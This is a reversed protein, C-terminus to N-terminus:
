PRLKSRALRGLAAAIVVSPVLLWLPAPVSRPAPEPDLPYLHLMPVDDYGFGGSASAFRLHFMGSEHFTYDLVWTTANARQMPREDAGLMVTHAPDWHEIGAELADFTANVPQGARDLTLMHIRTTTNTRADLTADAAALRIPLDPYVHFTTVNTEDGREDTIRLTTTYNGAHPMTLNARFAGGAVSLPLREQWGQGDDFDLSVNARSPNYELRNGELTVSYAIPSGAYMPSPTPSVYAYYRDTALSQADSYASVHATAPEAQGLALLTLGILPLAARTTRLERRSLLLALLTAIIMIPAADAGPVSKTKEGTSQIVLESRMGGQKHGPIDCYFEFTGARKAPVTLNAEQGPQLVAFAWRDKCTSEPEAGDGCFVVTHQGAGLNQIHVKLTDGEHANFREPLLHLPNDHIYVQMELTQPAARAPSSLLALLLAQAALLKLM